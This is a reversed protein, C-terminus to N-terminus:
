NQNLVANIIAVIIAQLLENFQGTQLASAGPTNSLANRVTDQFRLSGGNSFDSRYFGGSNFGSTLQNEFQNISMSAQNFLNGVGTELGDALGNEFIGGITLPANNYGYLSNGSLWNNGYQFLQELYQDEGYGDTSLAANIALTSYATDKARALDGPETVVWWGDCIQHGQYTVLRGKCERKSNRGYVAFEKEEQAQRAASARTASDWILIQAELPLDDIYNGSDGGTGVTGNAARVLEQQIRTTNVGTVNQLHYATLLYGERAADALNQQLNTTVGQEEGTRSTAGTQRSAIGYEAAKNTLTQLSNGRATPNLHMLVRQTARAARANKKNQMCDRFIRDLEIQQQKLAETNQKNNTTGLGQLKAYGKSAIKAQAKGTNAVTGAISTRAPIDEVWWAELDSGPVVGLLHSLTLEVVQEAVPSLLGGVYPIGDVISGIGGSIGSVLAGQLDGAIQNGLNGLGAGLTGTKGAANNAINDAGASVSGAADAGISDAPAIPGPYEGVAIDGSSVFADYSPLAPPGAVGPALDSVQGSNLGSLTGSSLPVDYGHSNLAAMYNAGAPSLDAALRITEISPMGGGYGITALNTIARDYGSFGVGSVLATAIPQSLENALPKFDFGAAALIDNGAWDNFNFGSGGTGTNSAIQNFNLGNLQGLVGGNGGPAGGMVMQMIVPLMQDVLRDIGGSKSVGRAAENAIGNGVQSVLGTLLLELQQQLLQMSQQIQQTMTQALSQGVQQFTTPEGSLAGELHQQLVQQVVPIINAPNFQEMLQSGPGFSALLHQQFMADNQLIPSHWETEPLRNGNEDTTTWLLKQIELDMNNRLNGQLGNRLGGPLDQRIIQPLIQAIVQRFDDASPQGGTRGSSRMHRDLASPLQNRLGREIVQPLVQGIQRQVLGELNRSVVRNIAESLNRQIGRSIVNQLSSALGAGAVQEKCERTDQDIEQWERQLADATQASFADVGLSTENAFPEQTTDIVQALVLHPLLLSLTLLSATIKKYYEQQRM